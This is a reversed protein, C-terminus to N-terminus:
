GLLYFIFINSDIFFLHSFNKFFSAFSFLFDKPFSLNSQQEIFLLSYLYLFFHGHRLSHLIKHISVEQNPYTFVLWSSNKHWFFVLFLFFCFLLFTLQLIDAEFRVLYELLVLLDKLRYLPLVKLLLILNANVSHIHLFVM